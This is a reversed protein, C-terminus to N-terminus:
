GRVRAGARDLEFWAARDPEGLDDRIRRLADRYAPWIVEALAQDM